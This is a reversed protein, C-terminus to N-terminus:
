SGIFFKLMCFDFFLTQGEPHYLRTITCRYLTLYAAALVAQCTSVIVDSGIIRLDLEAWCQAVADKISSSSWLVQM